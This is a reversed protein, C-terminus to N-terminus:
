PFKVIARFVDEREVGALWWVVGSLGKGGAGGAGAVDQGGSARLCTRREIGEEGENRPGKRGTIEQSDAAGGANEGDSASCDGSASDAKAAARSWLMVLWSRCGWAKDAAPQFSLLLWVRDVEEQSCQPEGDELKSDITDAATRKKQDLINTDAGWAPAAQGGGGSGPAPRPLGTRLPGTSHPIAPQAPEESTSTAGSPWSRRASKRAVWIPPRQSNTEGFNYKADKDGGNVLMAKIIGNRGRLAAVHLLTRDWNVRTNPDAGRALLGNAIQEHNGHVAAQLICMGEGPDWANVDAGQLMLHWARNKDGARTAMYLESTQVVTPPPKPWPMWNVHATPDATANTAPLPAAHTTAHAPGGGDEGARLLADVLDQRGCARVHQLPARLTERRQQPTAKLFLIELMESELGVM